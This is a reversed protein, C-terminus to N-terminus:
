FSFILIHTGGRGGGRERKNETQVGVTQGRREEKKEEEENALRKKIKIKKKSFM